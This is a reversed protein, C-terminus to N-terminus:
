IPPYDSTGYWTIDMYSSENNAYDHVVESVNVDLWLYIAIDTGRPWLKNFDDVIKAVEVPM